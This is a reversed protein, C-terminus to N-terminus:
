KKLALYAVILGGFTLLSAIVEKWNKGIWAFLKLNDLYEAQEDTRDNLEKIARLVEKNISEQVIKSDSLVRVCSHIEKQSEAITDLKDRMYNYQMECIPLQTAHNM